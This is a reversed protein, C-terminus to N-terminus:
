LKFAREFKAKLEGDKSYLAVNKNSNLLIPTNSTKASINM